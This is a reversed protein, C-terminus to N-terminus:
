ETTSAPVAPAAPQGGADPKVGDAPLLTGTASRTEILTKRAAQLVDDTTVAQIRDSWAQVDDLSSGAAIRTAVLRAAGGLSDRAKVADITLRHKARDLEDQTVGDKLLAAIEADIAKEIEDIGVGQRPSGWFGFSGLDYVAPDYFCGASEAKGQEVVLRRYLRGVSADGMIESLVQLAYAQDGDATRYSPALYLRTMSPQEVFASKLTVRSSAYHEPEQLRQRKPVDRRPIPGYYKEALEKVEATTVDGAIVLVANNPAYRSRYFSLADETTYGEMEHKWGLVPLGYPHNLYLSASLMESLQSGPDNEVREHREEIIVDREPLVVADTLQLNAMRDAEMEMIRPLASKAIEQHFATYDQGTFANDTGGRRDIEKSFQGAALNKTAKFMLHELFHPIGNKGPLGDAAGIKYALIQFVVPALHNPLVVVELGNDLTFTEADFVKAAAPRAFIAACVVLGAVLLAPWTHRAINGSRSCAKL